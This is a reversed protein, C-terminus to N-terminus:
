IYYMRDQVRSAIRTSDRPIISSYIHRGPHLGVIGDDWRLLNAIIGEFLDDPNNNKNCIRIVSMEAIKLAIAKREGLIPDEIM